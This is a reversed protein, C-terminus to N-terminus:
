IPATAVSIVVRSMLLAIDDNLTQASTTYLIRGARKTAPAQSKSAACDEM